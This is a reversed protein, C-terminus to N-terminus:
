HRKANNQTKGVTATITTKITGWDYTITAPFYVHFVGVTLGNNEYKLKGYNNATITTEPVYSFKVKSTVDSLKQSSNNNIDTTANEIDVDIKKVGYYAFYDEGKTVKADTFNHDRWDTFTLNIAAESGKTEADEFLATANSVNIPRLFKVNFTKNNVPVDIGECISAKVAVVATVTNKLDEHGYANLLNLATATKAYTVIGSNADLSAVLDSEKKEKTAYVKTGDESAYLGKGTVFGFTLKLESNLGDYPKALPNVSLKNGVLTNKIDFVYEDNAGETGVVEVNGHIDDYRNLGAVAEDEGYWYKAIKNENGFTTEPKLNIASPTWTLKIYVYKNAATKGDKLAYRVYTTLTTKGAKFAAYAAQNNISWAIVETQKGEVDAVTQEVKGIKKDAALAEANLTAEAFQNADTTGGDLAYTDEFVEKSMNLKAYLQEEVQAWTVKQLAIANDGCAITYPTNVTVLDVEEAKDNAVTKVIKVKIYGVAAIQNNVTDKLIVRVLPERNISAENQEAGYAQQKDDKTMQPRLTYGDKALAAHASQSTENAGSKYGVLEFSYKFGAKEVLGEAANKDWAKCTPAEDADYTRDTNVYQRLDIGENNNWAVEIQPDAEIAAKATTYLHSPVEHSQTAYKPNNLVLDSYTSAKVAAFDSTVISDGTTYQLALVTVQNDNAINKIANGNYKAHVTVQGKNSTLDATEVKFANSINESARTYDKNYAIFSYKSADDSMKANSPNLFYTAALDPAYTFDKTGAVPADTAFDDDANVAKVTQPVYKYTAFDFAEIGQYYFDPSFVLAKLASSLNIVVKKGPAGAVNTLTLNDADWVATIVDKNTATYVIKSDYPAKDGDNYVWFTGTETNPVYYKGDKGDTGNTGNTGPTGPTGQEGQEGKDGKDGKDGKTGLAYYDTKANNKYWYGDTGITWVDADKGAAGDQGAAIHFTQDSGNKTVTVNVGGNGDSEVSKLISGANIQSQLGEITKSLNDIQQQLNQIDDDYDKCSTVMSTSAVAFAGMLLVSFYKRKM